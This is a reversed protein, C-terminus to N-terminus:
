RYRDDIRQQVGIHVAESLLDGIRRVEFAIAEDADLTILGLKISEISKEMRLADKERSDTEVERAAKAFVAFILHNYSEVFENFGDYEIISNVLDIAHEALQKKAGSSNSLRVTEKLVEISQETLGLGKGVAANERSAADELQVLYDTTCGLANAISCLVEASPLREGAEYASVAQSSIGAAQALDSQRQYGAHIRQKRLREAFISKDFTSSM